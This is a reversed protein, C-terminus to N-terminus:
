LVQYYISNQLYEYYFCYDEFSFSIFSFMFDLTPKKTDPYAISTFPSFRPNTFDLLSASYTKSIM